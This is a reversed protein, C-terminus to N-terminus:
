LTHGCSSCFRDSEGVGAGCQPCFRKGSVGQTGMQMSMNGMQMQMPNMKMPTMPKMPEMPKMPTMPRMTNDNPGAETTVQVLAIAEAESLEPMASLVSMGNGQVMVFQPGSQSELRLVIGSATSFATPPIVWRGTQFSSSAQQQQSPSSSSLTIVTQIGPNEIYLKQGRGLDCLYAMIKLTSQKILITPSRANGAFGM